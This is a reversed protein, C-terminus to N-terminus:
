LSYLLQCFDIYREEFTIWCAHARAVDHVNFNANFLKTCITTGDKTHADVDEVHHSLFTTSGTTAPIGYQQILPWGEPNNVLHWSYQFQRKFLSVSWPSMQHLSTASQLRDNMRKM